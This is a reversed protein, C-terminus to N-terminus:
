ERDNKEEEDEDEEEDDDDEDGEAEAAVDEEISEDGRIGGDRRHQDHLANRSGVSNSHAV